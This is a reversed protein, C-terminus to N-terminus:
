NNKEDQSNFKIFIAKPRLGLTRAVMLRTNGSVKHYVGNMEFIIPAEFQHNNKM